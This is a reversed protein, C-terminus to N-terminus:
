GILRSNQSWIQRFLINENLVSFFHIDGNFEGFEFLGLYWIEASVSLNSKESWIQRILINLLFLSCRWPIKCIRIIRPLLNWSLSFIKIQVLNACYLKEPWFCFFHFCWRQISCIQILRPVLNWSLSVTKTKQVLNTWFPYTLFLFLLM